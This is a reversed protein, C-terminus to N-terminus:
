EARELFAAAAPTITLGQGLSCPIWEGLKFLEGDVAKGFADLMAPAVHCSLTLTINGSPRALERVIRGGLAAVQHAQAKAAGAEQSLVMVALLGTPTEMAIDLGMDTCACSAEDLVCALEDLASDDSAMAESVRAEISLAVAIESAPAATAREKSIARRLAGLFEEVSGFRREKQKELCRTIVADFADSVPVLDRAHPPPASLQLEEVEIVTDARFPPQGTVLQYLLLGLGYIDTRADIEQHLIQEPAMFQPTGVVISSSTLDSLNDGAVLKAIGFDVLKCTFWDGRPLAVVNHAKLDRHVIGLAHAASLAACLEEMVGLAEDPSLAGREKLEANLDRGELWEMAIFPWGKEIEGCDIFEVINPHQLRNLMLAERRFRELIESSTSLVKALVKLAVVRGTARSRARYIWAFGGEARLSDITYGSVQLGPGPMDESVSRTAGPLPTEVRPPAVLTNVLRFKAPDKMSRGNM